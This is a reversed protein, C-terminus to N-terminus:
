GRRALRAVYFGDTDDRHPSLVRGPGAAAGARSTEPLAAFDPHAALFPRVRDEGEEPLLSCTAYVLMGGPAVLGAARELLDAQVAQLEALRAPTLRWRDEPARRWTGTGSCPADVLVRDCAGALEEPPPWPLFGIEAGAQAARPRLRDLRDAAIDTALLRGGQRDKGQGEGVAHLEAAIALIKGGAGACLDLVTMGPRADVLHAVLQSAADQPVLSGDRLLPHDRLPGGTAAEPLRIGQPALPAPEAALGEARLRALMPARGGRGAHARLDLPARGNLAALAAGADAGFRRRFSDELFAPINAAAWFPMAEDHRGAELDALAQREADTLPPPAHRGSGCFAELEAAMHGAAAFPILRDGPGTAEAAPGYLRWALRARDRLAAYVIERIRRRDGSGAYRNARGWDHLIRDVPRDGAMAAAFLDAAAALRAGPTM